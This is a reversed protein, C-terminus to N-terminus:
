EAEALAYPNSDGDDIMRCSGSVGYFMSGEPCTFEEVVLGDNCQAYKSCKTNPWVFFGITGPQCPTSCDVVELSSSTTPTTTTMPPGSTVINVNLLGSPLGPADSNASPMGSVAADPDFTPMPTEPCPTPVCSISTAFDCYGGSQSFITDGDCELTESSPKGDACQVYQKCDTGPLIQYGSSVGYCPNPCDVSESETGGEDAAAVVPSPTPSYTNDVCTVSTVWNCYGASLDYVTDGTCSLQSGSIEENMCQVYEKCETGPITNYALDAIGKCPNSQAHTRKLLAIPILFSKPTM